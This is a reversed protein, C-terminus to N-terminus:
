SRLWSPANRRGYQVRSKKRVKHHHQQHRNSSPTASKTSHQARKVPSRRKRKMQLRTIGPRIGFDSGRWHDSLIMDKVYLDLDEYEKNLKLSQLILDKMERVTLDPAPLIIRTAGATSFMPFVDLIYKLNAPKFPKYAATSSSAASSSSPASAATLPTGPFLRKTPTPQPSSPSPKLPTAPARRMALSAETPAAFHPVGTGGSSTGSSTRRPLTKGVLPTPSNFRFASSGGMAVATQTGHHHHSFSTELDQRQNQLKYVEDRAVLLDFEDSKAVNRDVDHQVSALHPLMFEYWAAALPFNGEAEARKAMARISQVYESQPLKGANEGEGEEEEEHLNPFFQSAPVVQVIQKECTFEALKKKNAWFDRPTAGFERDFVSSRILFRDEAPKPAEGTRLSFSVSEQAGPALLGTIPVVKYRTSCNAEIKFTVEDRSSPNEFTIHQAEGGDEGERFCVFAPHVHLM